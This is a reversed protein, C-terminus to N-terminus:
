PRFSNYHLFPSSILFKYFARTKFLVQEPRTSAYIFYTGVKKVKRLDLDDERFQQFPIDWGMLHDMFEITTKYTGGNITFLNIFRGDYREMWTSFIALQDYLDDFVWAEKIRERMGGNMLIYGIMRFGGGHGSLVINGIQQEQCGLHKIITHHIAHMFMKFGDKKELKGGYTDPVNKPGQPVILIANKRSESLQEAIQSHELVDDIEAWWGQLHVIYDISDTPEFHKPIFIAVTSDQYHAAAPYNITNLRFGTKRAQEPFPAYTTATKILLGIDSSDTKLVKQASIQMQCIVIFLLLYIYRVIM